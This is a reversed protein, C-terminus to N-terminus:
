LLEKAFNYVTEKTTQKVNKRSIISILKSANLLNMDIIKKDKDYEVFKDFWKM